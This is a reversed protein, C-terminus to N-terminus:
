ESVEVIEVGLAKCALYIDLIAWWKETNKCWNILNDSLDVLPEWEPVLYSFSPFSGQIIYSDLDKDDVEEAIRKPITLQPQSIMDKVDDFRVFESQESPFIDSFDFKELESM